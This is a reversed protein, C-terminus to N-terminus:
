VAIRCTTGHLIVGQVGSEQRSGISKKRDLSLNLVHVTGIEGLARWPTGSQLQSAVDNQRPHKVFASRCQRAFWTFVVESARKILM